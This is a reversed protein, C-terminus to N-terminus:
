GVREISIAPQICPVFLGQPGRQAHIYQVDVQIWNGAMLVQGERRRQGNVGHFVRRDVKTHAHGGVVGVDRWHNVAHHETPRRKQTRLM